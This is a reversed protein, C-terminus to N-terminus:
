IVGKLINQLTTVTTELEIRRQHEKEFADRSVADDKYVKVKWHGDATQEGEITGARIFQKIIEPGLGTQKAYERASIWKHNVQINEM